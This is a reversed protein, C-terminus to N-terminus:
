EAVEKLKEVENGNVAAVVDRKLESASFACTDCLVDLLPIIAKRTQKNDMKFTFERSKDGITVDMSYEDRFESYYLYIKKLKTM